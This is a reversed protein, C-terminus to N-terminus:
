ISGVWPAKIQHIASLVTGLVELIKRDDCSNTHQLVKDVREGELKTAICYPMDVDKPNECSKLIQPVSIGIQVLKDYVLKEHSFKHMAIESNAKPFLSIIVSPENQFIVEYVKTRSSNHLCEISCIRRNAYYEAVLTRM